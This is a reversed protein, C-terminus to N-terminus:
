NGEKPPTGRLPPTTQSLEYVKLSQSKGKVVIEGLGTCNFPFAQSPAEQLLQQYMAETLLIQQPTARTMLRAATNVTDGLINYERRGRAEGVEAAFVPGYAIGVQCAFQVEGIPLSLRPWTELLDRIGCAVQAARLSDNNHANPTGFYIILDSGDPHYTMRQLVGNQTQVMANIRSFIQNIQELIKAESASCHADIAEFFGMLSVFLVTIQLFQPPIQRESAYEVLLNLIPAAQYSALPEVQLLLTEIEQLLAEPSRDFLIPNSTRRRRFAIEYEGLRDEGWDDIVLLHENKWSELQVGEGLRDAFASTLCVRGVQGAGEAQKARQVVQGLLVREMRRPTGMDATLFQGWHLGIRMKLDFTGSPTKVQQFASMARQMRLGARLARQVDEGGAPDIFQALIADGTFELLEGGSKSVIASMTSFYENLLELLREAGAQGSGIHAEMFPTFGALDTFLLSGEQWTSRLEGLVPPDQKVPPPVYDGLIYLLTRLHQFIRMLQDSDPSVWASAYLEAPLLSRLRPEIARLSLQLDSHM